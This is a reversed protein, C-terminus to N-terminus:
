APASGGRLLAGGGGALWSSACPVTLDFVEESGDPSLDVVRDWFLDSAAWGRLTDSDLLTAYEGLLIRSPAFDLQASGGYATGRLAAMARHSIGKEAMAAKVHLFAEKPLTDVNTNSPSM